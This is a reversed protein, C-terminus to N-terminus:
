VDREGGTDEGRTYKATTEMVADRRVGRMIMCSHEATVTVEVARVSGRSAIADCVQQTLNEQIQLRQSLADVLRSLKSVGIVEGGPLYSISASGWFPLLHHECTSSFRIGSVRVWGTFESGFWKLVSSPDVGYGSCREAWARAM